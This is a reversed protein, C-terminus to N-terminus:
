EYKANIKLKVSDNEIGYEIGYVTAGDQALQQRIEITAAHDIYQSEMDIYQRIDCGIQPFEDFVGKPSEIILRQHQLDSEGIVLDGNQILFSNDSNLLIDKM